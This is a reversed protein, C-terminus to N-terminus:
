RSDGSCNGGGALGVTNGGSTSAVRASFSGSHVFSANSNVSPTAAGITTPWNPSLSGTEFDGNVVTNAAPSMPRAIAAGAPAASTTPPTLVSRAFLLGGIAVLSIIILTLYEELLSSSPNSKPNQM